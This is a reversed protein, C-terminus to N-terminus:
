SCWKDDGVNEKTLAVRRRLNKAYALSGLLFLLLRQSLDPMLNEEIRKLRRNNDWVWGLPLVEQESFKHGRSKYALTQVKCFQKENAFKRNKWNSGTRQMLQWSMKHNFIQNWANIFPFVWPSMWLLFLSWMGFFVHRKLSSFRFLLDQM